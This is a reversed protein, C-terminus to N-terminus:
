ITSAEIIHVIPEGGGTEGGLITEAPEVRAATFGAGRLAAVVEAGDAFHLGVPGRVVGALFLLFARMAPTQSSELTLDSIYLGAPFRSLSGAIRAWLALVQSRSLYSLLGETVIATGVRPDLGAAVAGVSLTGEAALADVEVVRHGSGLCGIRALAARKRAAMGPLDAEVYVIREGLERRLRWGRPSLGCALELVQGIRGEHVARRLLADIARHRALLYRELSPAGLAQAFALPARMGEYAIRGELTGLAPHSLGNRAWVWGTYHATPGIRGSGSAESV